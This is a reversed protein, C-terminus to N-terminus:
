YIQGKNHDFINLVKTLDNDACFGHVTEWSLFHIGLDKKDTLFDEIENQPTPILGIYYAEGDTILDFAKNVIKNKGIKRFDGFNPELIGIEVKQYKYNHRYEMLLTKLYLQSFLNSWYNNPKIKTDGDKPELYKRYEEVINWSKKYTNVKGEIFLVINKIPVEYHVIIILDADGFRSFSQELLITYKKPKGIDIPKPLKILEIFQKMLGKDECINFVLSNIIGRESYGYITNKEELVAEPQKDM